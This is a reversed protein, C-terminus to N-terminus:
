KNESCLKQGEADLTVANPDASKESVVEGSRAAFSGLGARTLVPEFYPRVADRNWWGTFGLVVATVILLARLVPPRGGPKGAPVPGTPILSRHAPEDDSAIREVTETKM